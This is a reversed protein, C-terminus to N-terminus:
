HWGLFDCVLPSCCSQAAPTAGPRRCSPFHAQGTQRSLSFSRNTTDRGAAAASATQLPHRAPVEAFFVEKFLPSIRPRSPFLVGDRAPAEASVLSPRSSFGAILALVAPKRAPVPAALQAQTIASLIRRHLPHPTTLRTPVEFRLSKSFELTRNDVTVAPTAKAAPFVVRVDQLEVVDVVVPVTVPSLNGAGSISNIFPRKEIAERGDKLEEARIAMQCFVSGAIAGIASFAGLLALRLGAM